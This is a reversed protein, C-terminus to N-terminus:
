DEFLRCVEEAAFWAMANTIAGNEPRGGGLYKYLDKKDDADMPANRFVGFNSVMTIIEEGMSSATDELLQIIAKRYRMAFAHTDSYYIFGSFGCDIGHRIVDMVSSVGIRNIVANILLRYSPNDRIVQTKTKM